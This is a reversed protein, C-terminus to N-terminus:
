VFQNILQSEAPTGPPGNSSTAAQPQTQTVRERAQEARAEMEARAAQAAVRQDQASPDRPALAARKVAQMKQINRGPNDPIESADIQVEGHVAYRNGDSGFEYQYHAGGRAYQAAAASHAREHERVAADTAKLEDLKRKEWPSLEQAGTARRQASPASQGAALRAPREPGEAPVTTRSRLDMRSVPGTISTLQM